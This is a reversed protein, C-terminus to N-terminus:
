WEDPCPSVEEASRVPQRLIVRLRDPATRNPDNLYIEHHLGCPRLGSRAIFDRLLHNTHHEEKYPGIHLAQVCLGEDVTELRVDM